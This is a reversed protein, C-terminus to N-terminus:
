RARKFFSLLGPLKIGATLGSVLRNQLFAEAQAQLKSGRYKQVAFKCFFVAPITLVLGILTNGMVISNNFGTFPLFPLNYIYTWLGQLFGARLVALGLAHAPPDLVFGLAGFLLASWCATYRDNHVCFILIVILLSNLSLPLLGLFMGLVFGAAIHRIRGTGLVTHYKKLWSFVNIGM